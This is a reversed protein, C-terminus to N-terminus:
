TSSFDGAGVGIGENRAHTGMELSASRAALVVDAQPGEHLAWVNALQLLSRSRRM